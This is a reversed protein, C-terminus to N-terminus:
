SFYKLLSFIIPYILSCKERSCQIIRLDTFHLKTMPDKESVCYISVCMILVCSNHAILFIETERIRNLLSGFSASDALIWMAQSHVKLMDSVYWGRVQASVFSVFFIIEQLTKRVSLLCLSHELNNILCILGKGFMDLFQIGYLHTM